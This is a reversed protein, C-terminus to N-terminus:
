KMEKPIQQNDGTDHRADNDDDDDINDGAGGRGGSQRVALRLSIVRSRFVQTARPAILAEEIM